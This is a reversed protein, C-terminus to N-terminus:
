LFSQLLQLLKCGWLFFLLILWGSSGPVLCLIAKNPMLPLLSGQDQSPKIGWHLPIHPCPPLLSTTVGEYFCTSPSHSPSKQTPLIPFQSVMQFTFLYFISYFVIKVKKVSCDPSYVFCFLVFYFYFYVFLFFCFSRSFVSVGHYIRLITECM